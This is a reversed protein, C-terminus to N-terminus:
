CRRFCEEVYNFLESDNDDPRFGEGEFLIFSALLACGVLHERGAGGWEWATDEYATNGAFTLRLSQPLWQIM